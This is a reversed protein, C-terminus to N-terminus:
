RFCSKIKIPVTSGGIMQHLRALIDEDSPEFAEDAGNLLPHM